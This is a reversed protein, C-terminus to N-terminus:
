TSRTLKELRCLKRWDKAKKAWELGWKVDALVKLALIQLTTLKSIRDQVSKLKIPDKDFVEADFYDVLLTEIGCHFEVWNLGSLEQCQEPTPLFTLNERRSVLNVTLKIVKEWEMGFWYAYSDGMQLIKNKQLPKLKECMEVFQQELKTM